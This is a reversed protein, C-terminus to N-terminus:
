HSVRALRHCKDCRRLFDIADKHMTPWFYGQKLIRYSLPRGGIHNGCIDEHVERLAYDVESPSLCRLLPMTYSRKYLIGNMLQFRNARYIIRKAEMKNQPLNGYRLWSILPDMWCPEEDIEMAEDFESVNPSTLYERFVNGMHPIEEADTLKSLLNARSNKKRPIKIFQFSDFKSVLSRVKTLYRTMGGNKAEYEGNI